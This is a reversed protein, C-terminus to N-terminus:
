ITETFRELAEVVEVILRLYIRLTDVTRSEEGAEGHQFM